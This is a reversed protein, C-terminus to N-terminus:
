STHRRSSVAHLPSTGGSLTVAGLTANLVHAAMEQRQADTVSRPVLGRFRDRVPTAASFLLLPAVLCIQVVFPNAPRFVGVARGEAMIVALTEVIRRMHSVVEPSLHRGGDAVERLWLSPFEAQGLLQETVAHIFGRLQEEPPGGRDRVAAAATSVRRFQGLLITQYLDTKSRFHYYVMAKTLRARAAIREVKAGDFGRAAFEATAATLLRDRTPLAAARARPRPM